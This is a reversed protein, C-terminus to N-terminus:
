PADRERAPPQVQANSPPDVKAIRVQQCLEPNLVKNRNVYHAWVEALTEKDVAVIAVGSETETDWFQTAWGILTKSDGVMEVRLTKHDFDELLENSASQYHRVNEDNGM